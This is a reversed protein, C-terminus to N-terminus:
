PSGDVADTCTQVSDVRTRESGSRVYVVQRDRWVACVVSGKEEFSRSAPAFEEAVFDAFDQLLQDKSIHGGSYEALSLDIKEILKKRPTRLNGPTGRM